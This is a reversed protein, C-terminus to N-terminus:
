NSKLKKPTNKWGDKIKNAKAIWDGKEKVTVKPFIINEIKELREEYQTKIAEIEKQHQEKLTQLIETTETPTPTELRLFPMAKIKYLERYFEPDKPAYNADSGETKHNMLYNVHEFGMQNAYKRFFKRLNYFRIESPKNPRIKYDLQGTKNLEEAKQKFTRSVNKENLEKEEQTAFLLSEPTLNKRTTLYQKVYKVSEEAIFTPHGEGLKGKEIESSVDIKCPIPTDPELIKEVDKIKLKSIICGRLGSQAMVAIYARERIPCLVMIKSVEDKEIDRNHYTIQLKPM